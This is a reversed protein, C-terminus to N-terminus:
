SASFVYVPLGSKDYVRVLKGGQPDKLTHVKVVIGCGAVAAETNCRVATLSVWPFADGSQCEIYTGHNNCFWGTPPFRAQENKRATVVRLSFYAGASGTAILTSM